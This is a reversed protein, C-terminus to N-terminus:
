PTAGDDREEWAYDYFVRIHNGDLDQAFFEYLKAHPNVTPPEEIRAGAAEWEAHLADIEERGDLNLWLLIPGRAGLPARVAENSMFMRTDGRSVCALGIEDATWDIKFGLSDRYYALAAALDAVPIDPCIAPFKM